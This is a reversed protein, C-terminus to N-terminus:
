RFVLSPHPLEEEMMARQLTDPSAGHDLRCPGIRPKPAPDGDSGTEVTPDDDFVKQSNAPMRAEMQRARHGQWGAWLVVVEHKEETSLDEWLM